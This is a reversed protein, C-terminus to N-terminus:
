KTSINIDCVAPLPMAEGNRMRVLRELEHQSKTIMNFACIKYRTIKLLEDMVDDSFKNQYKSRGLVIEFEESGCIADALESSVLQSEFICVRRYALMNSLMIEVLQTEYINTPAFHRYVEDLFDDCSLKDFDTVIKSFFGHKMANLRSVKKGEETKVGGQLANQRNAEAQKQTAM